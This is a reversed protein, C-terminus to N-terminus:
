RATSSGYSPFPQFSSRGSVDYFFAWRFPPGKSFHNTPSPKGAAKTTADAVAVAIADVGAVVVVVIEAAAVVIEETDAVAVAV